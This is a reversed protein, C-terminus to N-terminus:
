ASTLHNIDARNIQAPFHGDLETAITPPAFHPDSLLPRAPHRGGLWACWGPYGGRQPPFLGGGTLTPASVPHQGNPPTRAWTDPQASFVRISLVPQERTNVAGLGLREGACHETRSFKALGTFVSPSRRKRRTPRLRWWFVAHDVGLRVAGACSLRRPRRRRHRLFGASVPRWRSPSRAPIPKGPLAVAPHVM